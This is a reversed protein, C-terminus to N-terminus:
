QSLRNIWGQESSFDDKDVNDPGNIIKRKKMLQLTKEIADEGADAEQAYHRHFYM